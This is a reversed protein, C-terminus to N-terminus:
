MFLGILIIVAFLVASVILLTRLDRLVYDYESHWDVADATAVETAATARAGTVAPPLSQRSTENKYIEGYSRPRGSSAGQRKPSTRKKKTAM